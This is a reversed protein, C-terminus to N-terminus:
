SIDSPPTEGSWRGEAEAIMRQPKGALAVLMPRVLGGQRVRNDRRAGAVARQRIEFKPSCFEEIPVDQGRHSDKM